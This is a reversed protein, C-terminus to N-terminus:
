AKGQKQLTELLGAALIMNATSGSTMIQDPTTGGSTWKGGGSWEAKYYWKGNIQTRANQYCSEGTKLILEQDEARIGPLTLVDRVYRGAFTGNTWGDRDSLLVGNRNYLPSDTLAKATRIARELYIEEGTLQYLLAHCVAMGMNGGLFSVSGAEGIDNPRVGGDPGTREDRGSRDESYDCWYLYDDCFYESTEGNQRTVSYAGGRLLHKESWNYVNLTDTYLAGYEAQWGDPDNKKADLLLDLAASILGVNYLSKFRNDGPTGHTDDYGQSPPKQPYWLGNATDGDKYYDYSGRIVALADDRARLDGAALYVQMFFMANWGCDDAAINPAGGFNSTRNPVNARCWEYQAQLRVAQDVGREGDWYTYIGFTMMAFAWIMDDFPPGPVGWGTQVVNGGKSNDVWWTEYMDLLTQQAYTEYVGLDRPPFSADPSPFPSAGGEPSSSNGPFSCSPLVLASVGALALMLAVARTKNNM